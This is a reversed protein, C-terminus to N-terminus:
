TSNDNTTPLATKTFTTTGTWLQPLLKHADDGKWNDTFGHLLQKGTTFYAETKRSNTLTNPQPGNRTGTPTFLAQRPTKHTRISQTATETWTDLNNDQQRELGPPQRLLEDPSFNYNDEPQLPITQKGILRSRPQKLPFVTHGSWSGETPRFNPAAALFNDVHVM